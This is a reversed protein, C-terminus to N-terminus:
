KQIGSQANQTCRDMASKHACEFQVDAGDERKGQRQRENVKRYLVAGQEGEAESTYLKERRKQLLGEKEGIEKKQQCIRAFLQSPVVFNRIDEGRDRKKEGRGSGGM